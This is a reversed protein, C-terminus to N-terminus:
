ALVHRARSSHEEVNGGVKGRTFLDNPGDERVVVGLPLPPVLGRPGQSGVEGLLILLTALPFLFDELGAQDHGCLVLIGLAGSAEDRRKGKAESDPFIAGVAEEGSAFNTAIDLLAAASTPM